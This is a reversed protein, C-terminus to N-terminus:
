MGFRIRLVGLIRRREVDRFAKTCDRFFITCDHTVVRRLIVDRDATCITVKLIQSSYHSGKM